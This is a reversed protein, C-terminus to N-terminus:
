ILLGVILFVAIFVMPIVVVIIFVSALPHMVAWSVANMGKFILLYGLLLVLVIGIVVSVVITM